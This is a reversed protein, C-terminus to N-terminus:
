KPAVTKVLINAMEPSTRAINRLIGRIAGFSKLIMAVNDHTSANAAKLGGRKLETTKLMGALARADDLHKELRARTVKRNELARVVNALSKDSSNSAEDIFDLLARADKEIEHRRAENTRKKRLTRERRGEAAFESITVETDNELIRRLRIAASEPGVKKLGIDLDIVARIAKELADAEKGVAIFAQRKAATAAQAASSAALTASKSNAAELGLDIIFALDGRAGGLAEFKDLLKPTNRLAECLQVMARIRDNYPHKSPM